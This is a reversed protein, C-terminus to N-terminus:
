CVSCILSMKVGQTSLVGFLAEFSGEMGFGFPMVRGTIYGSLTGAVAEFSDAVLGSSCM